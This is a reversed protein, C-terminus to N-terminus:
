RSSSPLCSPVKLVTGKLHQGTLTWFCGDLWTVTFRALYPLGVRRTNIDICLGTVASHALSVGWWFLSCRALSASLICNFCLWCSQLRVRNTLATASTGAQIHLKITWWQEWNHAYRTSLFSYGTPTKKKEELASTKTSILHGSISQEDSSLSAVPLRAFRKHSRGFGFELARRLTGPDDGRVPNVRILTSAHEIWVVSDQLLRNRICSRIRSDTSEGKRRCPTGFCRCPKHVFVSAQVNWKVPYIYVCHSLLLQLIHAPNRELSTRNIDSAFILLLLLCMGHHSIDLEM